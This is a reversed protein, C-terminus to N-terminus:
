SIKKKKKTYVLNNKIKKDKAAFFPKFYKISLIYIQQYGNSKPM